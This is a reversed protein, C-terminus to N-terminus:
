DIYVGCDPFHVVRAAESTEKYGKGDRLGSGQPVEAREKM